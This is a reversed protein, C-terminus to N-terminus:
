NLPATTRLSGPLVRPPMGPLSLFPFLIHLVPPPAPPTPLAPSAALLGLLRRAGATFSASSPAPRGPRPPGTRVGGAWGRGHIHLEGRNGSSWQPAAARWITSRPSRRCRRGRVSAASAPPSRPAPARQGRPVPAPASGRTGPRPTRAPSVGPPSAAPRSGPQEPPAPTPTDPLLRSWRGWPLRSGGNDGLGATSCPRPAGLRGWPRRPAASGPAAPTDMHVCMGIHVCQRGIRARLSAYSICTHLGPSCASTSRPEMAAATACCCCGALAAGASGDGAPSLERVRGRAAGTARRMAGRLLAIRTHNIARGERDKTQGPARASRHQRPTISVFQPQSGGPQERSFTAEWLAAPASPRQAPLQPHTEERWM